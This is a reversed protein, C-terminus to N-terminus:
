LRKWSKINALPFRLWEETYAGSHTTRISLVGESWRSAYGKVLESTGDMFEIQYETYM